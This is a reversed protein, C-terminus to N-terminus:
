IESRNKLKIANQFVGLQITGESLWYYCEVFLVNDVRIANISSMAALVKESNVM